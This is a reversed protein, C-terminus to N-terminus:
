LKKIHKSSFVFFQEWQQLEDFTVLNMNENFPATNLKGVMERIDDASVIAKSALPAQMTQNAQNFNYTNMFANGTKYPDQKEYFANGTGSNM